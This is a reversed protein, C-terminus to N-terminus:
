SDRLIFENSIRYKLPLTEAKSNKERYARDWSLRYTGNPDEFAFQPGSGSGFSAAYVRLTNHYVAGKEIEVPASRCLLEVAVWGTVWQNGRKMELRPPVHGNCNALLVKSGTRNTYSYPITVEWGGPDHKILQYEVGDTRLLPGGDWSVDTPSDCSVVGLAVALLTPIRIINVM